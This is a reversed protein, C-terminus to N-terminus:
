SKVAETARIRARPGRRARTAGEKGAYTGAECATCNPAGAAAPCTLTRIMAEPLGVSPSRRLRGEDGRLLRM